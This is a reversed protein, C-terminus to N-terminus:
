WEDGGSVSVPERCLGVIEKSDGATIVSIHFGSLESGSHLVWQIWRANPLVINPESNEGKTEKHAIESTIFWEQRLCLPIDPQFFYM